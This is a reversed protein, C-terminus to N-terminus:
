KRIRKSRKKLFGAHRALAEPTLRAGTIGQEDCFQNLAAEVGGDGEWLKVPVGVGALATEIRRTVLEGARLLFIDVRGLPDQDVRVRRAARPAAM